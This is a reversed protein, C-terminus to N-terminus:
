HEQHSSEGEAAQDIKEVYHTFTVYAEVFRRGAEVSEDMHRRAEVVQEFRERIGQTTEEAVKEILADVDGSELAQDSLKVIPEVAEEPKLGTYAEGEGERHLRVLTEFFHMDALERAEPGEKRVILTKEFLTRIQQEYEPKVWKLVPTVDGTELATQATAIVPGGMTDCHARVAVSGTLTFATALVVTTSVRLISIM